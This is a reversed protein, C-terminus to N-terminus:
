FDGWIDLSLQHKEVLVSLRNFSSLVTKEIFPAPVDSFSHIQM